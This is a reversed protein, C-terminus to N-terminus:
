FTYNDANKGMIIVNPSQSTSVSVGSLVANGRTTYGTHDWAAGTGDLEKSLVYKSKLLM